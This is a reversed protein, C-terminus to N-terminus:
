GCCGGVDGSTYMRYGADVEAAGRTQVSRYGSGNRECLSWQAGEAGRSDNAEQNKM